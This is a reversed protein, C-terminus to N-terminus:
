KRDSYILNAMELIEYFHIIYYMNKKAPSPSPNPEKWDAYHKHSKGMNSCKNTPWSRIVVPLMQNYFQLLKNKWRSVFIQTTKAAIFKQICSKRYFFFTEMKRSDIYPSVFASCIAFIHKVKQSVVLSHNYWKIDEGAIDSFELQEM